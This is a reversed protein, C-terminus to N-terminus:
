KVKLKKLEALEQTLNNLLKEKESSDLSDFFEQWLRLEEIDEGLEALEVVLNNLQTKQNNQM